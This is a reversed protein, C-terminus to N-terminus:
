LAVLREHLEQDLGFFLIESMVSQLTERVRTLLLLQTETDGGLYCPSSDAILRRRTFCGSEMWSKAAIRATVSEVVAWLILASGAGRLSGLSCRRITRQM